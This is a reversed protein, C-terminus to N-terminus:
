FFPLDIFLLVYRHTSFIYAKDSVDETEVPFQEVVTHTRGRTTLVIVVLSAAALLGLMAAVQKNKALFSWM